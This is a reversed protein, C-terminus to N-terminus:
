GPVISFRMGAFAPLIRQGITFVMTSIFGVTLAHRSGGTWGLARDLHAALLRLIHLAGVSVVAAILFFWPAVHKLGVQALAVGSLNLVLAGRLLLAGNV